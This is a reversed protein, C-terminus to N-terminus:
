AALMARAAALQERGKQTLLTDPLQRLRYFWVYSCRCFPLEGPQEIDDTFGNDNVPALLGQQHAWSDRVLFIQGDRALHAPRADYGLQHVHRWKAAIAGGDLAITANVAAVMKHGQDIFLRREEFPLRQLPKKIEQKLKVRAIEAPGGKPISTAWGTWRRGMRAVAEERNLRILDTAALLRRDLEARLRPKLMDYSMRSVGTHARLAGDQEVMRRFTARLSESLREEVDHASGWTAVAAERLRRNWETVRAPDDYGYELMDNIAATLVDYFSEGRAPM